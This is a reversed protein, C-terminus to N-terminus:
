MDPPIFGFMVAYQWIALAVGAAYAVYTLIQKM